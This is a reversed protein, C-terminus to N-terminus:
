GARPDDPVRLWGSTEVIWKMLEVGREAPRTFFM